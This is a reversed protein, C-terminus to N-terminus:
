NLLAKIRDLFYREIDVYFTLIMLGIILVMGVQQIFDRARVNLPSGKIMEISYFFIHGGDLPPIPLLNIVGLTISLLAMMRFFAFWGGSEYSGGALYFISIPGGLAKKVPLKGTFLKGLGKLTLWTMQLSHVTGHYVAKIPNRYVENQQLPASPLSASLVGFQRRKESEQTLTNRDTIEEPVFDITKKQGDRILTLSLKEGTNARIKDQFSIWGQLVEQNISFLRDGPLIGHKSAVSGEKVERIYLEGEEIGLDQLSHFPTTLTLTMKSSKLNSIPPAYREIEISTPAKVKSIAESLQWWYDISNNGIKRIVDGTRLGALYAKSRNSSIGIVPQFPNPSIGIKGVPVEDGLDNKDTESRPTVTLHSTQNQRVIELQEPRGANKKLTDELDQWRWISQDNVL